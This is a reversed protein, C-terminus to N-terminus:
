IAAADGRDTWPRDANGAAADGRRRGRVIRPAASGVLRPRRPRYAGSAIRPAGTAQDYFAAVCNVGATHGAMTQLAAGGRVPDFVKITKDHSGTAVRPAGGNAPDAYCAVGYVFDAHGKLTLAPFEGVTADWTRITKDALAAILMPPGM